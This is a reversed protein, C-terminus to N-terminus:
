LPLKLLGYNGDELRSLVKLKQDEESRFVLFSDESLDMKMVAEKLTLTKLVARHKEVIEGPQLAREMEKFNAEDIEDNIETLDSSRLVQMSLEVEPVGKQHHEKLRQHYREFKTQLKKAAFDVAAYFDPDQAEVRVKIKGALVVYEVTHLFRQHDIVIRADIIEIGYREIKELKEIAYDKMAETLPDHRGVLELAYEKGEFKERTEQKVAM